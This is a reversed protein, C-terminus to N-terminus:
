AAARHTRRRDKAAKCRALYEDRGARAWVTRDGAKYAEWARRVESTTAHEADRAAMEAIVEGDPRPDDILDDLWGLPPLWGLAEADRSARTVSCKEYPTSQPPAQDWLRDYLEAFLRAKATRVRPAGNVIRTLVCRQTGTMRAQNNISWGIRALAQIRRRTGAADTFPQWTGRAIELDRRKKYAAWPDASM